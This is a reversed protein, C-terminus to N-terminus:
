KDRAFEGHLEKRKAKSATIAEKKTKFYKSFYRKGNYAVYAHWVSRRKDFSVGKFGSSNRKSLKQNANNQSDTALRLNEFRNDDRIGNKHDIESKPWDGTMWLYALRHARYKTFLLWLLIYGDKDKFGAVEGIKASRGRCNIKWRFIGTDPEYNLMPKIMDLNLNKEKEFNTM